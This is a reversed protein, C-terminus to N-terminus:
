FVIFRIKVSDDLGLVSNIYLEFYGDYIIISAVYLEGLSLPNYDLTVLVMRSTTVSNNTVVVKITEGPSMPSAPSWEIVGSMGNITPTNSNVSNVYNASVFPELTMYTSAASSITLYSSLTSALIQSIRQNVYFVMLANTPVKTNSNEVITSGDVYPQLYSAPVYNPIPEAFLPYVITPESSQESSSCGCNCGISDMYNKLQELTSSAAETDGCDLAMNYLTVYALINIVNNTLTTLRSSGEKLANNYATFIDSICDRMCCLNADCELVYYNYDVLEYLLVLSDNQTRTIDTELAVTYSGTWVNPGVLLSSASTTEQAAVPTGNSLIPYNLTISRSITDSAFYQTKDQATIQAKICDGSVILSPTPWDQACYGVEVSDSYYSVLRIQTVQAFGVIAISACNITTVSTGGNFSAGTVTSTALIAGSSNLFEIKYETGIQAVLGNISAALSSSYGVSDLTVATVPSAGIANIDENQNSTFFENYVRSKYTFFYDGYLANLLTDVPLQIKQNLVPSLTVNPSNFNTNAYFQVNERRALLIVGAVASLSIGNATYPTTDFVQLSPQKTGGVKESLLFKPYFSLLSPNM